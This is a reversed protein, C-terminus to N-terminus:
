KLKVPNTFNDDYSTAHSWAINELLYIARTLTQPDTDDSKFTSTDMLAYYIMGRDTEVLISQGTFSFASKVYGDDVGFGFKEQYQNEPRIYQTLIESEISYIEAFYDRVESYSEFTDCLTYTEQYCEGNFGLPNLRYLNLSSKDSTKDILLHEGNVTFITISDTDAIQKTQGTVAAQIPNTAFSVVCCFLVSLAACVARKTAPRYLLIHKIREKASSSGFALPFVNGRRVPVMDLLTQAYGARRKAGIRGVVQADCRTEMDRRM